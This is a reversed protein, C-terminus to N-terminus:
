ALDLVVVNSPEDPYAARERHTALGAFSGIDWNGLAGSAVGLKDLTRDNCLGHLQEPLAFMIVLRHSVLRLIFGAQRALDNEVSHSAVM